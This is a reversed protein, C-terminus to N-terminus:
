MDIPVLKAEEEPYAVMHAGNVASNAQVAYRSLFGKKIKPEPANWNRRREALITEDVKLTITRKPVSYEIIDGDEVLAILGGKIAEPSVHGIVGGVSAGSFRGDTILSVTSSLDYARMASTVALMERMGPGGVPGEYRIVICDGPNIKGAIIADYCEAENDFVRAKGTHELMEPLVGSTKIVCGDEALNGKLVALGGEKTYPDNIPRIIETNIVKADAVVEGLTRGYITGTSGDIMGAKIGQNIVAALSGARRFDDVGHTSMCPYIKTVQPTIHSAKDFDDPGIKYGAEAAIAPLHLTTNTSCGVMMDIKICNRFSAKSIIDSPKLDERVMEVIRQGAWLTMVTRQNYAGPITATGLPGLGLVESMMQMSVATGMGSSCGPCPGLINDVMDFTIKANDEKAAAMTKALREGSDFGGEPPISPGGSVFIAPINLRIIAMLMAPVVKDCNAICVLGDLSHGEVFAEVSDAIIDRSPLPYRMGPTNECMGDCIAIVNSVAPTGGGILVGDQVLRSVRDLHAHGAFINSYSGIVGILPKNIQEENLGGAHMLMRALTRGAGTKMIDSRM